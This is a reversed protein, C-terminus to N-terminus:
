GAGLLRVGEQATSTVTFRGALGADRLRETLREPPGALILRAPPHANVRQQIALLAAVGSSDWLTLGALDLILHPSGEAIVGDVADIVQDAARPELQGAAVLLTYGDRTQRTLKFPADPGPPGIAFTVAASTGGPGSELSVEDALRRVLWLGHGFGSRWRTAAVGDRGPGGDAVPAAGDDTVLCHLVRDHGWVRLRGHGAGHRVANAALEHIAAVADSVRGPSLGAEAAHAAMASRLAYLSGGDFAQDLAPPGSGGPVTGDRAASGGGGPGPPQTLGCPDDIM